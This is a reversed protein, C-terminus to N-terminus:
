VTIVKTRTCVSKGKAPVNHQVDTTTYHDSQSLPSRM